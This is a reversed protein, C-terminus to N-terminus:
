GHLYREFWGCTARIMEPTLQHGVGDIIRLQLAEPQSRYEPKLQRYLDVAYKKPAHTDIDGCLMLMPRRYHELLVPSPDIREMFRSHEATQGEVQAMHVAWQAYTSTELVVDQWRASFTPIAAIPVVAKIQENTAAVHFAAFGGMSFGTLGIAQPLVYDVGQFHTILTAIDKGTQVVIEHMLLFADLGSEVPYVPDSLGSLVRELQPDSREGHMQADLAVFCCGQQALAYGLALGEEKTSTFGHVFFVLPCNDRDTEKMMLVPIDAIKFTEVSIKTM